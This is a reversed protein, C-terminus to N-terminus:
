WEVTYNKEDWDAVEVTLTVDQANRPINIRYNYRKGKGM